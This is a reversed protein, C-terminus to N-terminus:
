AAEGWCRQCRGDAGRQGGDACCCRPHAAQARVREAAADSWREWYGGPLEDLLDHVAADSPGGRPLRGAQIADVVHRRVEDSM